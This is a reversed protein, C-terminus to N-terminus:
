RAPRRSLRQAAERLRDGTKQTLGDLRERLEAPATIVAARLENLAATRARVAGDRTALLVRLAQTDEGVRPMAGGTQLVHRAAREADLADTKLRGRSGQRAPREVERVREGQGILFRALGAGYSGSGEVAWVRAGPAETHAYGLADRYGVRTAAVSGVSRTVGAADVVALVHRDAHTDVGVVFAVRDALM